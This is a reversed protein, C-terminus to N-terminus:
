TLNVTHNRLRRRMFDGIVEQPIAALLARLAEHVDEGLDRRHLLQSLRHLRRGYQGWYAPEEIADDADPIRMILNFATTPLPPLAALHAARQIIDMPSEDTIRSAILGGYLLTEASIIRRDAHASADSLWAFLGEPDGPQRLKPLLEPPPLLVDAGAIEAIMRPYRTNVPREDLPILAVKM